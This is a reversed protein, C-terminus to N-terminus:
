PDQFAIFNLTAFYREKFHLTIQQSDKNRGDGTKKGLLFENQKTLELQICINILHMNLDQLGLCAAATGVGQLKAVM